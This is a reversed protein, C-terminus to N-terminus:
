DKRYKDVGGIEWSDVIAMIVADCPRNQTAITQRASSGSAILVMEGPGVGVADAAVVHGGTLLRGEKKGTEIYRLITDRARANIVPGLTVGFHDPEGVRISEVAAKLKELFPAYLKRSVIARSCASCKQGQFGFASVVVGQVAADLDAEDDVIIADKGGLEAVVRKIWVQGPGMEAAIRSIGLGVDKSGTFAVFRTKPHRVLAEGITAGNGTVFNLAGAPLGVEEMLQVFAWATAPADSSPKLVVTNGTVLAASTMGVTIALPFNWPPLVVGVGLPEYTLSDREGPLQTVPQPGAYRLMERAYFELFDIAECVDGDAEIWSKGVELVMTAGLELRRRRMIEAAKFLYDARDGPPVRSWAEFAVDATKVAKEALAVTGKQFLGLVQGKESPNITKFTGDGKLREGGIVIDYEKGAEAEVRAIAEAMRKRLAEDGFTYVAENKFEPKM